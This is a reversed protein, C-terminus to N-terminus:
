KPKDQTETKNTLKAIDEEKTRCLVAFYNTKAM